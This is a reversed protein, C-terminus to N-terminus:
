AARELGRLVATGIGGGRAAARVAMRGIRGPAPPEGLLRGTGMLRPRASAPGGSGDQWACVHVAALDHEDHEVEEPVGQGLVFVEHRLALVAPLEASTAEAVWLSGARTDIHM